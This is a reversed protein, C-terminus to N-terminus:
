KINFARKLKAELDPELLGDDMMQICVTKLESPMTKLEDVSLRDLIEMTQLMSDLEDSECIYNMKYAIDEAKKIHSALLAGAGGIAGFYVGNNRKMAEIVEQSRKGNGRM